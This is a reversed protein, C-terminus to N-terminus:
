LACSRGAPARIRAPQHGQLSECRLWSMTEGREPALETLTRGFGSSTGTILWNSAVESSRKRRHPSHVGEEPSGTVRKLSAATQAPYAPQFSRPFSSEVRLEGAM